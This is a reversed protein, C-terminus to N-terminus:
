GISQVAAFSSRCDFGESVCDDRLDRFDDAVCYHGTFWLLSQICTYVNRSRSSIRDSSIIAVPRLPSPEFVSASTMRPIALSASSFIPHPVVSAFHYNAGTWRVAHQLTVISHLILDVTARLAAADHDRFVAALRFILFRTLLPLRAQAPMSSLCRRFIPGHQHRHVSASRDAHPAILPAPPNDASIPKVRAVMVAFDNPIIYNM